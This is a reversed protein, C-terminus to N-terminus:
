FTLPNSLMLFIIYNDLIGTVDVARSFYKHAEQSRGSKHMELGKKMNEERSRIHLFAMM